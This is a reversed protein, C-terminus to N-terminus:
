NIEKRGGNLTFANNIGCLGKTQAQKIVDFLLGGRLRSVYIILCIYAQFLM